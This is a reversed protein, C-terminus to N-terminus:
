KAAAAPEPLAEPAFGARALAPHLAGEGTVVIVEHGLSLSRAAAQIRAADLSAIQAPMRDFHDPPLGHLAITELADAAGDVTDFRRAFARAVMWRARGASAPQLPTAALDTAARLITEVTRPAADADVTASVVLAAAQRREVLGASAGYSVGEEVRIRQNLRSELLWRVAELAPADRASLPPVRFGVAVTAQTGGRREVLAVSRGAPAPAIPAPPVPGAGDRDWGGFEKQIWKWGEPSPAVDSVVIV